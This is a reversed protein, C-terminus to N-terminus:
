QGAASLLMPDWHLYWNAMIAQVNTVGFRRMFALRAFGSVTTNIARFYPRDTEGQKPICVAGQYPGDPSLRWTAALSSICGPHRSGGLQILARVKESLAVLM